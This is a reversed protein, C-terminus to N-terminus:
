DNLDVTTQDIVSVVFRPLSRTTQALMTRGQEDDYEIVMSYLGAPITSTVTSGMVLQAAGEVLAHPMMQGSWIQTNENNYIRATILRGTTMFPRYNHDRFAFYLVLDWGRYIQIPDPSDSGIRYTGARRDNIPSAVQPTHYAFVTM